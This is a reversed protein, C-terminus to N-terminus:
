IDEETIKNLREMQISSIIDQFMGEYSRKFDQNTM